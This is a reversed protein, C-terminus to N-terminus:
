ASITLTGKEDVSIPAVSPVSPFYQSKKNYEELISEPINFKTNGINNHADSIFSKILDKIAKEQTPHLGIGEILTLIKGQLVNIEKTIESFNLKHENMSSKSKVQSRSAPNLNNLYLM